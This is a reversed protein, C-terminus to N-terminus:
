WSLSPLSRLYLSPSAGSRDLPQSRASVSRFWRPVPRVSLLFKLRSSLPFTSPSNHVCDSCLSISTPVRLSLSPFLRCRLASSVCTHPLFRWPPSASRAVHFQLMKPHHFSPADTIRVVYSSMTSDVLFYASRVSFSCSHITLTLHNNEGLRLTLVAFTSLAFTQRCLHLQVTFFALTPM